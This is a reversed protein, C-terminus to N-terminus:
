PQWFGKRLEGYVDSPTLGIDRRGRECMQALAHRSRLRARWEVVGAGMRLAAAAGAMLALQALRGFSEQSLRSVSVPTGLTGTMRMDM